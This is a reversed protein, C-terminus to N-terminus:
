ANDVTISYIKKEIGWDRFCKLLADAILHGSHPTPINCFNLARSNLHWESDIFHCTVVMYLDKQCTLMDTTIYVNSVLDLLAKLKMKESEYTAFCLSEVTTPSIEQWCPTYAKMFNNFLVCEGIRFPYEHYLFMHSLSNRVNNENFQSNFTTSVGGSESGDVSSVKRKMKSNRYELCTGLHRSLTTTSGSKSKTFNKECWRCQIRIEGRVDVEFFHNWVISTKRRPKGEYVNTQRDGENPDENTPTAATDQFLEITAGLSIESSDFQLFDELEEYIGQSSGEGAGISGL